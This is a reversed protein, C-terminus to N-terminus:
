NQLYPVQRLRPGKSVTVALNLGNMLLKILSHSSNHFRRCCRHHPGRHSVLCSVEDFFRFLTHRRYYGRPSRENLNPPETATVLPAGHNQEQGLVQYPPEYVTQSSGSPTNHVTLKEAVSGRASEISTLEAKSLLAKLQSVEARLERMQDDNDPRQNLKSSVTM